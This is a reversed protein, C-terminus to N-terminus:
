KLIAERKMLWEIIAKVNGEISALRRKLEPNKHHRM